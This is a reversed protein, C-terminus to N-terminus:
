NELLALRRDAEAVSPNERKGTLREFLDDLAAYRERAETWLARAREREGLTQHHVAVSRIANAMELPPTDHARYINLMEVYHPAADAHHGADHCIDGLHRLAHALRLPDDQQRLIAVADEQDRAAAPYHHRDRAIRARRALALDGPANRDRCHDVAAAFARAADDLREERRAKDGEDLLTQTRVDMATDM